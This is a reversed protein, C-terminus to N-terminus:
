NNDVKNFSNNMKNNIAVVQNHSGSVNNNVAVSNGGIVYNNNSPIFLTNGNANAQNQNTNLKTQFVININQGVIGEFPSSFDINAANMKYVTHSNNFLERRNINTIQNNPPHAVQVTNSGTSGGGISSSEPFNSVNFFQQQQQPQQLNQAAHNM